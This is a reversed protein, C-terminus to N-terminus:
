ANSDLTKTGIAHKGRQTGKKTLKQSQPRKKKKQKKKVTKPQKESDSSADDSTTSECFLAVDRPREHSRRSTRSKVNSTSSVDCMAINRFKKRSSELKRPRQSQKAALLKLSDAEITLFSTRASKAHDKIRSRPNAALRQWDMRSDRKKSKRIDVRATEKLQINEAIGTQLKRRSKRRSTKRVNDRAAEDLQTKGSQSRSLHYINIEFPPHLM